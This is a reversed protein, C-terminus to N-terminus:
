FVSFCQQSHLITTSMWQEIINYIWCKRGPMGVSRDHESTETQQGWYL